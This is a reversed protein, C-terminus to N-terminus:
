NYQFLLLLIVDYVLCVKKKDKFEEPQVMPQPGIDDSDSDDNHARYGQVDERFRKAEEQELSSFDIPPIPVSNNSKIEKKKPNM